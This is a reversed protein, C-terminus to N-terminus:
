SPKGTEDSWKSSGSTLDVNLSFILKKITVIIGYCGSKSSSRMTIRSPSSTGFFPQNEPFLCPAGFPDAAVGYGGEM